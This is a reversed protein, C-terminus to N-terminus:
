NLSSSAPSAIWEGPLQAQCDSTIGATFSQYLNTKRPQPDMVGLLKESMPVSHAQKAALQFGFPYTTKELIIVM